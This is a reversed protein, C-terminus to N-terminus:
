PYRAQLGIGVDLQLDIWRAFTATESAYIYLGFSRTLDWWYGQLSRVGLDAGRSGGSMDKYGSVDVLVQATAFLSSTAAESFWFRAGPAIWAPHPGDHTSSTSAFDQELGLQLEALVDLHRTVGYSLELGVALPARGLCVPANGTSVTGDSAGCYVKEDYTAIARLGAGFRPSIGFSGQHSFAPDDIRAAVPSILRPQAGAEPNPDSEPEAAAVHGLAGNGCLWAIGIIARM